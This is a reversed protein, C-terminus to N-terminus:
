SPTGAIMIDDYIGGEDLGGLGPEARPNGVEAASERGGGLM